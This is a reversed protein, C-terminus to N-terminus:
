DSNFWVDVIGTHKYDTITLDYFGAETIEVLFLCEDLEASWSKKMETGIQMMGVDTADATVPVLTLVLCLVMILSLARKKM